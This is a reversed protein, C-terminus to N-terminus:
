VQVRPGALTRPTGRRARDGALLRAALVGGLAGFAHAQWSIGDHPILSGILAAGWIAGVLAGVVLQLADRNFLGRALLYAAYGFVLGSAGLTVSGAPAFLWVGLGSVLGVLATVMLVRVAGSLAIVAGMIAFPVTNSILHQFGAHLFPASVIEPLGDTSRPHIGYADLRNGAIADVIELVWMLVVMAGVVQLGDTRFSRRSTSM